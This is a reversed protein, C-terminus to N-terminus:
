ILMGIIRDCVAMTLGAVLLSEGPVCYENCQHGSIVEYLVSLFSQSVPGCVRVRVNALLMRTGATLHQRSPM